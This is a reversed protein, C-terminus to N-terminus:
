ASQSDQITNSEENAETEKQKIIHRLTKSVIGPGQYVLGTRIEVLSAGANLAEYAREPTDIHSNAILPLRGKTYKYIHNLHDLSRIEIGDINNVMSYDAFADLEEETLYDPLKIVIPKYNQEALRAELMPEVHEVSPDDTLDAVFFDFFDYGLTFAELYDKNICAALIDDQPDKQIHNIASKIEKADVPGVEVFSFGLNNLDNYLEGHIDLGAGLGVPNYFPLGFVEKELGSPKNGNAYRILQRVLPFRGIFSFYKLCIRSADAMDKKQIFPKVFVDYLAM